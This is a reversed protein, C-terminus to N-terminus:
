PIEKLHTEAFTKVREASDIAEKAMALTFREKGFDGPYRTGEVYYQSLRDIDESIHSSNIGIKEELEKFLYLLDHTKQLKWGKKLLLAKLSKEASSSSLFCIIHYLPLTDKMGWRAYHLDDSAYNIWEQINEETENM